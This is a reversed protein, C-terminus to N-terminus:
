VKIIKIREIWGRAFEENEERKEVREVMYAGQLINLYNFMLGAPRVDLYASLTALTTPGIQGDAEIDEYLTGMKNLMNLSRQLFQIARYPSMLVATDYIENAIAQNGLEDRLMDLGGTLLKWADILAWGAWKPHHVRSIGCYTEGGSDKPNNVYGGESISTRSYAIDFKAV